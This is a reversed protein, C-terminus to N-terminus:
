SGMNSDFAIVWACSPTTPSSLEQFFSSSPIESLLKFIKSWNGDSLFWLLTLEFLLEYDGFFGVVDDGSGLLRGVMMVM